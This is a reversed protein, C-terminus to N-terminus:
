GEQDQAMALLIAGFEDLLAPLNRAAEELERRPIARRSGLASLSAQAREALPALAATIQEASLAVIFRRGDDLEIPLLTREEDLPIGLRPKGDAEQYMSVSTHYCTWDFFSGAGAINLRVNIAPNESWRERRKEPKSFTASRNGRTVGGFSSSLVDAFTITGSAMGEPPMQRHIEFEPSMGELHSSDPSLRLGDTCSL